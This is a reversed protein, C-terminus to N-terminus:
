HHWGVMEDETTGKEKQKRFATGSLPARSVEARAPAWWMWGIAWEFSRSRSGSVRKSIASIAFV